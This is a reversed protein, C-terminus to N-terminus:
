PAIPREGILSVGTRTSVSVGAKGCGVLFTSKEQCNNTKALLREREAPVGENRPDDPDIITLPARFRDAERRGCVVIDDPRGTRCEITARTAARYREMAADLQPAAQMMMLWALM